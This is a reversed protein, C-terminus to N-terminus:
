RKGAQQKLEEIKNAGIKKLYQEHGALDYIFEKFYDQMGEETSVKDYYKKLHEDDRWYCYNMEGPHSGLPAHVIADTLFYPILNRDPYEKFYENDVIEEASILLKKSARALESAFGVIGEIECNGFKDARHVHIIGVDLVTAPLLCIKEGTFPDIVVKAASYEFTDSGLMSRTPIFPVGMAGAVMRWSLAANSWEVIKVKGSEAARRLIPSTGYVEWGIYTHDMEKVLNAGLLYDADLVGQGVFRLEGIGQRVIERTLSLPCRVTGYLEIGLYDNPKVFRSIADKHSMLKDVLAMKKNARMYERVKDPEPPCILKGKGSKIVKM